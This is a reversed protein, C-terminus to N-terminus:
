SVLTGPPWAPNPYLYRGDGAHSGGPIVYDM